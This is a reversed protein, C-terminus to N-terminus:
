VIHKGCIFTNIYISTTGEREKLFSTSVTPCMNNVQGAALIMPSDRPTTRLVLQGEQPLPEGLKMLKIIKVAVRGWRQRTAVGPRADMAGVGPVVDSCM